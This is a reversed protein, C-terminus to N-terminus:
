GITFVQKPPYKKLQLFYEELRLRQKQIISKKEKELTNLENLFYALKTFDKKHFLVGAGGLTEKVAGGNFAVVPVEYIMSELLPVCFGEHESMSLFFDSEKYSSALESDTAYPVISVNERLSFHNIMYNLEELYLNLSPNCFGIMKIKFNDGFLTKWTYAFRLIDDQKKNPAIRGVFLFQIIKKPDKETVFNKKHSEDVNLNLHLPFLDVNSIGLSQLELRNFESVALFKDFAKSNKEISERGNKLLISFKLDYPEFFHSPTVNHYIFIKKCPFELITDLAKSAISHHYVLIDDKSPNLKSISQSFKQPDLGINESYIGGYISDKKLLSQIAIMENSIADGKQFGAAVQHIKM